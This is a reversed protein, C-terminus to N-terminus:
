IDINFLLLCLASKALKMFFPQLQLDIGTVGRPICVIVLLLLAMM